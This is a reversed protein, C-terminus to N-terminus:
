SFLWAKLFVLYSCEYVTGEGIWTMLVLPLGPRKDNDTFKVIM